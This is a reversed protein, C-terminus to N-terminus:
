QKTFRGVARREDGNMEVLYMGAKLKSIDLTFPATNGAQVRGFDKRLVERGAIDKVSVRVNGAGTFNLEFSVRDAAPNPFLTLQERDGGSLELIGVTPKKKFTINNACSSDNAAVPDTYTVAAPRSPLPGNGDPDITISSQPHIKFCFNLNRDVTFTDFTHKIYIAKNFTQSGGSAVNSSFRFSFVNSSGTPGLYMTDTPTMDATGNNTITFSFFCTDGYNVTTPSATVALGLNCQKQALATTGIMMTAAAM